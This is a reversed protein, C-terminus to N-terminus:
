NYGILTSQRTAMGFKNKVDVGLQWTVSSTQQNDVACHDGYIIPFPFTQLEWGARWAIEHVFILFSNNWYKSIFLQSQIKCTVHRTKVFLIASPCRSLQITYCETRFMLSSHWRCEFAKLLPDLSCSLFCM